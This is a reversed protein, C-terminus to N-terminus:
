RLNRKRIWYSAAETRNSVNIKKFINSIYNRVTKDSISLSEAIEKNTKGLSLAQLIKTERPSFESSEEIKQNDLKISNFVGETVSPDLVSDGNYVSLITKILEESEINKLLYGDAGARITEMVIHEEAYATLIIIKINPFLNKISICGNVGDGDPLKFDLLIVDPNTNIAMMIAEKLTAAEGCVELGDNLQLLLRLGDRVVSHDDVLLVKIKDNM